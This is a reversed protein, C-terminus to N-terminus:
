VIGVAEITHLDEADVIGGRAESGHPLHGRQTAGCWAPGVPAGATTM